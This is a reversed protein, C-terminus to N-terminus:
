THKTSYYVTTDESWLSRMELYLSYKVNERSITFQGLPVECQVYGPSQHVHCSTLSFVSVTCTPTLTQTHSSQVLDHESEKVHVQSLAWAPHAQTERRFSQFVLLYSLDHPLPAAGPCDHKASLQLSFGYTHYPSVIGVFFDLRGHKESCSRRHSLDRLARLAGQQDRTGWLRPKQRLECYCESVTDRTCYYMATDESKLSTMELYLTNKANDRSITFRGKVADTYYTSGGSRSIAAVVELGKGPAQRVWSMDYNSFTFGSAACSLKLSKGPQVMGGDTELLQVECQVGKIILVFSILILGLDMTLTRHEISFGSGYNILSFWSVTWTLSLTQSPQELGSGTEKLEGRPCSVQPFTCDEHKMCRVSSMGQRKGLVRFCECSPSTVLCLLLVLVFMG